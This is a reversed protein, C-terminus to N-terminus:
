EYDDEAYYPFVNHSYKERMKELNDPFEPNPLPKEIDVYFGWGEQLSSKQYTPKRHVRICQCLM